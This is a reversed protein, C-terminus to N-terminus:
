RAAAARAANGPLRPEPEPLPESAAPRGLVEDVLDSFATVTGNWTFAAARERAADGLQRRRVPDSLLGATARTMGDLDHVLLGTRDALVSDATGGATAYAVTPVGHRAAEMIALGWGEKISASLHVWASALVRHKTADDVHGVLRVRDAVKLQDARMRVQEAWYGDGVVTLTLAPWTAVLRALVELAHEVQKHPVLRSLVVLSPTDSRGARQPPPEDVGNHVVTIRDAPVGLGVLERRTTPSVAVYRCGRYFPPAVSSELWWGVRAAVPGVAVRWQERHVHHVLVVVPSRTVARSFFPIGNQCDVVVDPRGLRGTALDRLTTPFVTDANGCRLYRVGDVLERAAAGPYRATRVSVVDGRAALGTALRHLYREAGGGLPNGLDRWSLFLVRRAGRRGGVAPEGM